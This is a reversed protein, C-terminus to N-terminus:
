KYFLNPQQVWWINQALFSGKKAMRYIKISWGKYPSTVKTEGEEVIRKIHRITQQSLFSLIYTNGKIHWLKQGEVNYLVTLLEGHHYDKLCLSRKLHHTHIDAIVDNKVFDNPEQALTKLFSHPFM